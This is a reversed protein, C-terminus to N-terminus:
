WYLINLIDVKDLCPFDMKGGPSFGFFNYKPLKTRRSM